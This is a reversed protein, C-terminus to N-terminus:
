GPFRWPAAAEFAASVQLVLGDAFRPGVVQLGVPMGGSDFGAPLSAGPHGTVNFPFTFPIFGGAGAERGGIVTPPPGEAVFPKAAVTPTLLLDYEEFFDKMLINLIHREQLAEAYQAATIGKAGEVFRLFGPELLARQADSLRAVMAVDGPAGLTFWTPMPNDFGPNAEVLEAGVAAALVEAGARAVAQVEPDVAAYGLDRSWAVRRVRPAGRLVAAEYGGAPADLAHLDGPHPGAVVDLYRAADRVDRSVPGRTGHTAWHPYTADGYPIRGNTPKLGYIGCFAAPIRISGGGDSSTALPTMGAAVAAASGGSSGGPTLAPNWPNRTPGFLQNETYGKYGFEPTNTKGVIVAGAARLRAVQVSDRGAVNEKYARSGNTTPWGGVDELDKVGIPVGALPGPDEGNAVRADIGRAQERAAEPNLYVFANLAGNKAAIAALHEELTALASRRGLRVEDAIVHAPTYPM